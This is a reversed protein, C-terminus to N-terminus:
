GGGGRGGRGRRPLSPGQSQETGAVAWRASRGGRVVGERASAAALHSGARPPAGPPLGAAFRPAAAKLESAGPEAQPAAMFPTQRAWRGFLRAPSGPEAELGTHPGAQPRLERGVSPRWGGRARLGQEAAAGEELHAELM